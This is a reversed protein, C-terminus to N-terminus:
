DQFCIITENIEDIWEGLHVAEKDPPMFPLAIRLCKRAGILNELLKPAIAKVVKSPDVCEAQSIIQADSLGGLDAIKELLDEIEKERETRKVEELTEM